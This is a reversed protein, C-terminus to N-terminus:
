DDDCDKLVQGLRRDVRWRDAPKHHDAAWTAAIEPAGAARLLEEGIEPHRRYLALARRVPPGALWADAQQDPVVAWVLTAAVRSPTRLESVVKGVDHMLAAVIVPTTTDPGLVAEVDRAVQVAHRQDPRSMRHWLAREDATLHQLAWAADAAAPPGPRIAGFFRRVLHAAETFASGM